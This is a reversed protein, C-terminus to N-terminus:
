VSQILGVSMMVAVLPKLAASLLTEQKAKQVHVCLMESTESKVLPELEVLILEVLIQSALAMGQANQLRLQYADLLITQSMVFTVGPVLIPTVHILVSEAQVLRNTLVTM